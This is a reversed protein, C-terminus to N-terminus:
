KQKLMTLSEPENVDRELVRNPDVPSPKIGPIEQYQQFTTEDKEFEDRNKKSIQKIQNVGQTEEPRIINAKVFIYLKDDHQEKNVTSFLTGVVPIDGLLPVKNGGKNQKLKILGGLIITSGDPVTVITDINSSKQDPPVGGTAGSASTTQFDSRQMKIELRLLDGESIQPTIDLEIKAAYPTYTTSSTGQANVTAYVNTTTGVYTTDETSITGKENDNVLIKPRALVRGYSKTNVMTLLTQIKDASYFGTTTGTAGKFGAERNGGIASSVLPVVKLNDTVLGKANAVIDLDYNFLDDRTIEVLSVDILVQPRRRDLSKILNGIWEQNKKSAYVILSFTNKDPVIAISEETYKVTQQIKGEKDKVTKEILNNLVEALAEPEQNELRYIKYPIAAEVPERDIYSIIRSIQIQQEPTANILLSNTSELKVVQPQDLSVIGQTEQAATAQVAPAGPQGPGTKTVSMKPGATGGSVEIIGLEGLAELVKEIDVYQIEYEQIVRVDQQPVDLTDIIQEVATIENILGIM